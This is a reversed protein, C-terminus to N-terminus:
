MSRRAVRQIVSALTAITEADGDQRSRGVRYAADQVRRVHELMAEELQLWLELQPPKLTDQFSKSLELIREFSAVMEPQQMLLEDLDGPEAEVGLPMPPGATGLAGDGRPQTMSPATSPVGSTRAGAKPQQREAREAPRDSGRWRENGAFREKVLLVPEERLTTDARSRWGSRQLGSPGDGRQSRFGNGRGVVASRGAPSALVREVAWTARCDM